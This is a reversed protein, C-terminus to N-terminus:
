NVPFSKLQSEIAKMQKEPVDPAIAIRIAKLGEAGQLDEIELYEVQKMLMGKHQLYEIYDMYEALILNHTYVIAIRGPM